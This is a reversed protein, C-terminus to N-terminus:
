DPPHVVLIPNNVQILIREMFTPPMAGWTDSSDSARDLLLWSILTNVPTAIEIGIVLDISNM